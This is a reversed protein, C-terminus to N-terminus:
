PKSSLLRTIETGNRPVGFCGLTSIVTVLASHALSGLTGNATIPVSGDQFPLAARDTPIRVDDRGLEDHVLHLSPGREVPEGILDRLLNEICSRFQEYM